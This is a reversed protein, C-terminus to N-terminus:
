VVQGIYQSNLANNFMLAPMYLPTTVDIELNSLTAQAAGAHVTVSIGPFNGEETPQGTIAGNLPNFSLGPPLEGSMSFITFGTNGIVQPTFNYTYGIYAPGPTGYIALPAVLGGSGGSGLAGVGSTISVYKGIDIM